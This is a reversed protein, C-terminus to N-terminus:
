RITYQLEKHQGPVPSYYHTVDIYKHDNMALTAVVREETLEDIFKVIIAPLAKGRWMPLQTAVQRPEPPIGM